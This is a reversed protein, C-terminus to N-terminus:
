QITKKTSIFNVTTVGRVRHISKALMLTYHRLSRSGKIFKIRIDSREQTPGISVTKFETSVVTVGEIGRIETYVDKLNVKKDITIKAETEYIAAPDLKEQEEKLDLEPEETEEESKEAASGKEAEM